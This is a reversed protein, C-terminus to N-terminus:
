NGSRRKKRHVLQEEVGHDILYPLFDPNAEPDFHDSFDPQGRIWDAVKEEPVLDVFALEIKGRLWAFSDRYGRLERHDMVPGRLPVIKTPSMQLVSNLTNMWGGLVADRGYPNRDGSVLHGVAVVGAEPLHVLLDGPTHAHPVPQLIITNKKGPIAARASIVLDPLVREPEEWEDPPSFRERAEAGLEYSPDTLTDYCKHSSIRLTSPPFASAGGMADAHPHSFVLYRIPKSSAKKIAQLLERAAAPSPQADVVLLSDEGEIVLSNTHASNTSAPRFLLIGDALAEVRFPGSAEQAIAPALAGLAVVWFVLVWGRM